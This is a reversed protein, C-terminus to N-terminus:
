SLRPPLLSTALATSFVRRFVRLSTVMEEVAEMVHVLVSKVETKLCAHNSFQSLCNREIGHDRKIGKVNEALNATTKVMVQIDGGITVLKHALDQVVQINAVINEQVNTAAVVLASVEAEMRKRHKDVEEHRDHHLAPLANVATAASGM